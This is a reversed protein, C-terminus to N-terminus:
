RIREWHGGSSSIVAGISAGFATLGATGVLWETTVPGHSDSDDWALTLAVISALALGGGIAAGGWINGGRRVEIRALESMRREVARAATRPCEGPPWPCYAIVQSESEVPAALTAHLTGGEPLTIRVRDGASASGSQAALSAPLTWLATLVILQWAHRM